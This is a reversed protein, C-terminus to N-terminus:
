AIALLYSYVGLLLIGASFVVLIATVAGGLESDTKAPKYM